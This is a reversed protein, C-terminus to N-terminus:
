NYQKVVSELATIIYRRNRVCPISFGLVELFVQEMSMKDVVFGVRVSRPDFVQRRPSLGADIEVM